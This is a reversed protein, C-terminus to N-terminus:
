HGLGMHETKRYGLKAVHGAGAIDGYAGSRRLERCRSGAGNNYQM